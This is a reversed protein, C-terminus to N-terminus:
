EELTSIDGEPLGQARAKLLRRMIKGSRTKPLSDVFTIQEPKAIPGMEHAVHNRLEEVLKLQDGLARVQLTALEAIGAQALDLLRDLEARDFSRQEGTGQVEILKGDALDHRVTWWNSQVVGLGLLAAERVADGGTLILPGRVAIEIRKGKVDYPWVPFLASAICGHRALDEPTKPEGHM